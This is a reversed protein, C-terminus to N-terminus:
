RERLPGRYCFALLLFYGISALLASHRSAFRERFCHFNSKGSKAYMCIFL